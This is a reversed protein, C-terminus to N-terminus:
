FKNQAIIRTWCFTKLDLTDTESYLKFVPIEIGGDISILGIKFGDTWSINASIHYASIIHKYSKFAFFPIYSNM